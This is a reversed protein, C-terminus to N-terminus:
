DLIRLALSNSPLEQGECQLTGSSKDCAPPVRQSPEFLTPGGKVTM